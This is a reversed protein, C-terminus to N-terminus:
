SEVEKTGKNVKKTGKGRWTKPIMNKFAFDFIASM